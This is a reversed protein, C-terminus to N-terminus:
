PRDPDGDTLECGAPVATWRCRVGPRARTLLGPQGRVTRRCGPSSRVPGSPDANRRRRIAHTARRSMAEIVSMACASRLTVEILTIGGEVLADLLPAAHAETEVHLIAVVPRHGVVLQRLGGSARHTESSGVTNM